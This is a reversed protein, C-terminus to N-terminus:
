WVAYINSDMRTVQQVSANGLTEPLELMHEAYVFETALAANDEGWGSVEGEVSKEGGCATLGLLTTLVLGACIIRRLGHRIM